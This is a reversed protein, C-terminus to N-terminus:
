KNLTNIDIALGKRVLGFVDFHWSILKTYIMLPCEGVIENDIFCMNLMKNEYIIGTGIHGSGWKVPHLYEKKIVEVPVFKFGNHEIEKTLDSLPRLILKHSKPNAEVIDINDTALTFTDGNAESYDASLCVKVSYPLYSALHEITLREM